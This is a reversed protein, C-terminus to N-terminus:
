PVSTDRLVVSDQAVLVLVGEDLGDADFPQISIRNVQLRKTASGWMPLTSLTEVPVTFSGTDPVLCRISAVEDFSYQNIEVMFLTASSGAPEWTIPLDRGPEMDVSGGAASLEGVEVLTVTKPIEIDLDARFAPIDFSGTARIRATRLTKRPAAAPRRQSHTVKYTVGTIYPVLDPFYMSRLKASTEPIEVAVDGAELLEVDRTGDDRLPTNALPRITVNCQGAEFESFDSYDPTGVTKLVEARDMGRSRM